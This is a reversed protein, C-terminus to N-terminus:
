RQCRDCFFSSRQAIRRARIPRGCLPCPQGARDYVRRRWQYAGPRGIGDLFDSVSTGRHEIAEEIIARTAEVIADCEARSLRALRRTPRVGSLFLIENVYINGLGAVVHQDMLVDKISRRTRARLAALYEGTFLTRDLPEPGIGALLPSYGPDAIEMLGFRRPDRFVVRAGDDLTVVVHQHRAEQDPADPALRLLRGSMGLHVVWARGDDLHLLLYKARRDASVITKGLLSSEFSSALKRRLDRRRVEVAVVARGVVLPGITRRITEVEPLEPM